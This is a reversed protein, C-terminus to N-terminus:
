IGGDSGLMGDNGGRVGAAWAAGARSSDHNLLWIVDATLIVACTYGSVSRTPVWGGADVADAGVAIGLV